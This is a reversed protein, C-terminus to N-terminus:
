STVITCKEALSLVDPWQASDDSILMTTTLSSTPPSTDEHSVHQRRVHPPLPHQSGALLQHQYSWFLFM